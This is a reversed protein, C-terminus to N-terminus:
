QDEKKSKRPLTLPNGALCQAEYFTFVGATAFAAADGGAIYAAAVLFGGAVWELLDGVFM